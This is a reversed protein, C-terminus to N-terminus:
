KSLDPRRRILESYSKEYTPTAVKYKKGLNIVELVLGDIECPKNANYDRHMSATSTEALGMLIKMNIDVIEAPLACGMSHSLAEIEKVCSIFMNQEEGKVQFYKASKDFYTGAAAMPSVFSFKQLADVEINKSLIPTIDSDLLDSKIQELVPMYKEVIAKDDDKRFGYVVRFIKGLMLINGPGDIQAAVYICGDLVINNVLKEQLSRGTGYINLVPIIITDKSAVREIFPVTEDVSYGKVCLFIVDPTDNYEDMTCAKLPTNFEGDPHNFSLGNENIAKLHEGRAIATVDKGARALFGAIPGGTGGTGIVLYKMRGEGLIIHIMLLSYFPVSGAM